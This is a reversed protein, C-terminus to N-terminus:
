PSLHRLAEELTRRVSEATYPDDPDARSGAREFHPREGMTRGWEVDAERVLEGLWCESALLQRLHAETAALPEDVNDLLLKSSKIQRHLVERLSGFPDILNVMLWAGVANEAQQQPPIASAGKMAGPGAMRGIADKASFTRNHRIEREIDADSISQSKQNEVTM